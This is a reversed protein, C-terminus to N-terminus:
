KVKSKTEVKEIYYFLSSVINWDSPSDIDMAEEKEILFMGPRAGLRSKKKMFSQYSFIYINSNEEYLPTLDQTRILEDPDHNIPKLEKDYLRTRIETVSFLSDIEGRKIRRFYTDIAESITSSRILPNTSHTQLFHGDDNLRYVEYEIIRNMPVFDGSLEKPRWSIEVDEGYKQTALDAIKESDTNIVIRDIEKCRRLTDTIYFFLPKNGMKKINKNPLRESHGKMPLLAYM